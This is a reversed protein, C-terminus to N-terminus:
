CFTIRPRLSWHSRRKQWCKPKTWIGRTQLFFSALAAHGGARLPTLEIARRFAREAEDFRRLRVYASAANIQAGLDDPAKESLEALMGLAEDTREQQEYLWALVRRPEVNAPGLECARRLCAEGMQYDGHALYAKGVAASTRAALARTQGTDTSIQLAQRHRQEDVAKLEKFRALYKQSKEHDGLRDCATALAFYGNTFEPGMAVGMELHQRARDYQKLGLYAQGLLVSATMLKPQTKLLGALLEVAEDLKGQDILAEALHVPYVTSDRDLQMAARYHEAAVDLQGEEYAIAAIAAHASAALGPDLEISRQWCRVADKTRGLGQYLSAAVDLAPGNDPFQQLLHDVLEGSELLLDASDTSSKAAVERVATRLQVREADPPHLFLLVIAILGAIGVSISGLWAWRRWSPQTGALQSERTAEPERQNGTTRRSNMAPLRRNFRFGADVPAKTSTREEGELKSLMQKAKAKAAEGPGMSMLSRADAELAAATAADTAKLAEIQQM